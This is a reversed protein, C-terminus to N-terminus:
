ISGPIGIPYSYVAFWNSDLFINNNINILHNSRALKLKTFPGNRIAFRDSRFTSLGHLRVCLVIVLNDCPVCLCRTSYYTTWRMKPPKPNLAHNNSTIYTKSYNKTRDFKWGLWLRSVLCIIYYPGTTAVIVKLLINSKSYEFFALIFPPMRYAIISGGVEHILNLNICDTWWPTHNRDRM